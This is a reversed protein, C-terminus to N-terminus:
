FNSLDKFNSVVSTWPKCGKDHHVYKFHQWVKSYGYKGSRETDHMVIYDASNKFNIADIGRRFEPHHDIFVVGRHTKFDMADWNEILRVRHLPSQFERSFKYFDPHDEYTIVKRNLNKCLWHLLPTSFVGGGVEVVDGESALVAKILMPM